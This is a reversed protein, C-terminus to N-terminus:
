HKQREERLQALVTLLDLKLDPYRFNLFQWHGQVFVTEAIIDPKGSKDARNTPSASWVEVSCKDGQLNAKRVQYRKSPDQSGLIPDFDLGVIDGQAHSAAESDLKLMRLLSPSFQAARHQIALDWPREKAKAAVATYWDYFEQVFGRCSAADQSHSPVQAGANALLITSIAM